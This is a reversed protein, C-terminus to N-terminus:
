IAEQAEEYINLVAEAEIEDSVIKGEFVVLSGHRDRLRVEIELQCGLPFVAASSRYKKAGVLFGSRPKGGEARVRLGSWAAVAQAMFELGVWSPIGATGGMVPDTGPRYFPDSERISRTAILNEGNHSVIEDILIMDGSHPIIDEIKLM